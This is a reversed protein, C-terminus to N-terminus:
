LGPQQELTGARLQRAEAWTRCHLPIKEKRSIKKRGNLWCRNRQLRWGKKMKSMVAKRSKQLSRKIEVEAM